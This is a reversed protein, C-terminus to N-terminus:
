FMSLISSVFFIYLFEGFGANEIVAKQGWCRQWRSHDILFFVSSPPRVLWTCEASPQTFWIIAVRAEGRAWKSCTQSEVLQWWFGPQSLRQDRRSSRSNPPLFVCSIGKEVKNRKGKGWRKKKRLWSSSSVVRARRREIQKREREKSPGERESEFAMLIGSLAKVPRFNIFRLCCSRPCRDTTNWFIKKECFFFRDSVRVVYTGQVISIFVTLKGKGDM